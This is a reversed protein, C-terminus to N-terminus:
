QCGYEEMVNIKSQNGRGKTLWDKQPWYSLMPNTGVRGFIAQAEGDSWPCLWDFCCFDNYQNLPRQAERATPRIARCVHLWLKRKHIAKIRITSSEKYRIQFNM